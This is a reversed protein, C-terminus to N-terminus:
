PGSWFNFLVHNARWSTSAPKTLRRNGRLQADTWARVGTRPASRHPGQDLDAASKFLNYRPTGHGFASALADAISAELTVVEPVNHRKQVQEPNFKQLDDICKKLVDIRRRM